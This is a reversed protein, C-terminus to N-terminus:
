SSLRPRSHIPVSSSQDPDIALGALVMVERRSQSDLRRDVRDDLIPPHSRPPCRGAHRPGARRPSPGIRLTGGYDRRDRWSSRRRPATVEKAIMQALNPHARVVPQIAQVGGVVAEVDVLDVRLVAPALAVDDMWSSWCPMRQSPVSYVPRWRKSGRVPLERRCIRDTLGPLRESSVM